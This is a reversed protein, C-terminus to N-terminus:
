EYRLAILPDVSSARRLPIVAAIAAVGLIIGISFVLSIISLPGIGYILKSLIRVAGYAIPLGCGLGVGVLAIAGRMTDWWIHRREAGLAMRIGIERTRSAVLFSLLGFLGVGALTLALAGFVTGLSALLREQLLLIDRQDAVTRLHLSYEHGADGLTQQVARSLSSADGSFRLQVDGWRQLEPYQWFNLYVFNFDDSRPDMLRADAAIGVIEIDQTDHESGIRIHRGLADAGPFLRKAISQSLIATKTLQPTDTRRFDQGQLLPIRMASLFGDSVQEASTLIVPSNLNHAVSIEQKFPMTFLPSFHSLSVAEVGPLFRMRDLLDRYYAPGDFGNTYGGPLPMLFATLLGNVRFGLPEQRLHRLTQVFVSALLVLVLTCAVQCCLLVSRSRGAAGVTSFTGNKLTDSLDVASTQRGPLLGFFLLVVVAAAASFLLVRIDIGATLQFGSYARSLAALLLRDGISTVCLAFALCSVVLVGSEILLEGVIQWRSAGLALRLAIERKRAFGRAVQLNAVNVCSVVLLLASIALLAVLPRRYRNRTSYDLGTAGSVVVLPRNLLEDREPGQIRAPLSEDMMRRWQVKLGAQVQEMTAEPKLRAFANAFYFARKPPSTSRAPSGEQTIPYSVSPPFALLLGQFHPETVGIITFPAGEINMSQGLVKPDAGFQRRWFAYSLVAVHPGNPVDDDPTLLRGLAPRVGLTQYCDGSLSHTSLPQANGNVEGTVLTTGVGCVGELSPDKRLWEFMPSPIPQIFGRVDRLGIRILRDPQHVPLPRLMLANLLGFIASNAGIGLGLSLTVAVVFGPSRRFSRLTNRLSHWLTAM